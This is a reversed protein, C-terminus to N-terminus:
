NSTTEHIFSTLKDVKNTSVQAILQGDRFAAFTPLNKVEALERSKPFKEADVMVFEAGETERALRQFTPKILRCNGCWGASYQVYTTKGEAMIEGLNDSTIEQYM